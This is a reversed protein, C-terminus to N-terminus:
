RETAALEVVSVSRAPFRWKLAPDPQLRHERPKFVDLNIPSIEQRPNEPSIELVRGGPTAGGEVSITVEVSGSYNLNAVHLFFTDETRTAAIDLASPASKVAVAQRGNHRKFLRMVAGAPLLYSIGRPVQHLLANTTWRTGNFDAATAIKVRDGHRQYLNLIRAHYVGTLWETLIPNSNHPQLSLHGETIAIGANSKGGALTEKLSLLKKEIRAAPMEMLEDWAREPETQYRLGRLVTDSRLPTQGMMHVAVYNLQEGAQDLLDGAWGNDGWGILQLTGDRERMARAFEITTSIAEQKKFCASGYSTENGLQWLKIGFPTPSGHAKRGPHDPDNAYSVWDAAERADGSRNGERTKAYRKEGDSLFNVCYLPEAGVQRCFHVFEATGVRNTEKGGWVYNRMWPRGEAPGVGERWKYYRSFLGGFRLAGPALDRTTEVFDKRWDDADYDWAAEVSPDTVGLPEMFQMYLYPSIEFLPKPDLLIAAGSTASAETQAKALARVQATAAAVAALRASRKLFERRKM